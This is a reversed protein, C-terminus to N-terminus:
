VAMRSELHSLISKLNDIEIPKAMYYLIGLSRIELELERSNMGTMTIINVQPQLDKIKPIMEMATTEELYIDLLVIDYSEESLIKLADPSNHASIADYGWKKIYRLLTVSIGPDDDIILIKMKGKGATHISNLEKGKKLNNKLAHNQHFPAICM